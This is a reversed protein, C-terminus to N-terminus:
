VLLKGSDQWTLGDSLEVNEDDGDAAADVLDDDIGAGNGRGRAAM